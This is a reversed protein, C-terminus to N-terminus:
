TVNRDGVWTTSYFPHTAMTFNDSDQEGQTRLHGVRFATYCQSAQADLFHSVRLVAGYRAEGPGMFAGDTGEIRITSGPAIDFRLAGKIDGYRGQLIENVYLFHAYRNLFIQADEKIQKPTPGAAMQGVRPWNVANGRVGRLYDSFTSPQVFNSLFRPANKLLVIGSSQGIYQGGITHNTTTDGPRLDDGVGSGVGGFICVARTQRPLMANIDQMDIDRASITYGEGTPDWYDRLGPVFPIVMAKTPYPVLKFLYDPGIEGVLKDWFTTNAMGYLSNRYNSDSLATASLDAAMADAVISGDVGGTDFPLLGGIANLAAVADGNASDNGDNGNPDVRFQEINIRDEGALELFWPKICGWLNEEVGEGTIHAQAAVPISAAGVGDNGAFMMNRFVLDAPNNPSSSASLASSFQLASLWHRCEITMGYSEYTRKYGVGVVWGRFLVATGVPMCPRADGGVYSVACYVEIPIQLQIGATLIHAPSISYPPLVTYGLPLTLTCSPIVDMEYSVACQVVDVTTGAINAWLAVQQTGFNYM